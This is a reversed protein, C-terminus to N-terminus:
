KNIEGKKLKSEKKITRTSEKIQAATVSKEALATALLLTTSCYV